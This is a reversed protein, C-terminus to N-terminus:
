RIYRIYRLPPPLIRPALLVPLRGVLKIGVVAGVAAAPTTDAAAALSATPPTSSIVHNIQHHQRAVM